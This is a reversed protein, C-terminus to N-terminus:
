RMTYGDLGPLEIASTADSAAHARPKRLQEQAGLRVIPKHRQRPGAVLSRKHHDNFAVPRLQQPARSLQGIVPTCLVKDLLGKQVHESRELRAGLDDMKPAPKVLDQAVGCDSHTGVRGHLCLQIWLPMRRLGELVSDLRAHERM